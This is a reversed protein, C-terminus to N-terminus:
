TSDKPESPRRVPWPSSPADVKVRVGHLAQGLDVHVVTQGEGIGFAGLVQAPGAVLRRGRMELAGALTYPCPRPRLRGRMRDWWAGLVSEAM